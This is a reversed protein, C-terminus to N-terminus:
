VQMNMMEHYAAVLKNRVQLTAQLAISAKQREIMVDSLNVHDDGLAFRESLKGAQRQQANVKDISLKLADVFNAAGVARDAAAPGVHSPGAVGGAPAAGIEQVRARLQTVMAEIRSHDIAGTKM